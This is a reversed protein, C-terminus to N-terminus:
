PLSLMEVVPADVYHMIMCTFASSFSDYGNKDCVIHFGPELLTEKDNVFLETVKTTIGDSVVFWKFWKMKIVGKKYRTYPGMIPLVIVVYCRVVM